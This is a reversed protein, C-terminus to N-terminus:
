TWPTSGPGTRPTPEAVIRSRTRLRGAFGQPDATMLEDHLLRLQHHPAGPWLHHVTHYGDSHPHILRRQLPGINTITSDFVTDADHYSHESSEGIFRLVPLVLAFGTLWVGAAVAAAAAGWLLAAPLSVVLLAWGVPLLLAPLDTSTSRYWGRQHAAIRVLLSRAYGVRSTRDLGTIDLEAYRQLDPDDDTGLRSHHVLHEARYRAIRIGTPLGALVTACRDNTRRHHRSWNFHSAEHVLCELARIQRGTLILATLAMLVGAAAPAPASWWGPWSAALIAAILVLQDAVAVAATTALRTHHAARLVPRLAAPSQYGRAYPRSAPEPTAAPRDRPSLPATQTM